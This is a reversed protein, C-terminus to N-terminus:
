RDRTHAVEAARREAAALWRRAEDLAALEYEIEAAGHSWARVLRDCAAKVSEQAWCVDDAADCQAADPDRLYVVAVPESVVPSRTLRESAM